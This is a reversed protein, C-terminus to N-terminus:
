AEFLSAADCKLEKYLCGTHLRYHWLVAGIKTCMADIYMNLCPYLCVILFEAIGQVTLVDNVYHVHIWQLDALSVPPSYVFKMRRTGVHGRKIYIVVTLAKLVHVISMAKLRKSISDYSVCNLQLYFVSFCLCTLGEHCTMITKIRAQKM